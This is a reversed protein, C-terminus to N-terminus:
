LLTLGEGVVYFGAIACRNGYKIIQMCIASYSDTKMYMM